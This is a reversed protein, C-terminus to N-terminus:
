EQAQVFLMRCFQQAAHILFWILGVLFAAPVLNKSEAALAYVQVGIVLIHGTLMRAFAYWNFIEPAAHYTRSTAVVWWLNFLVSYVILAAGSTVWLAQESLGFARLTEPLLSLFLAGFALALLVSLRFKQVPTIPGPKKRLAVILGSFGAFAISVEAIVQLSNGIDM